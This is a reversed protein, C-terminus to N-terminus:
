WAPSRPTRIAESVDEDGLVRPHGSSSGLGALGAGPRSTTWTSAARRLCPAARYMAGTDLYDLGVAPWRKATHIAWAPPDTSPSSALRTM